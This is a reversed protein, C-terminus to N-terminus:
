SLYLGFFNIVTWIVLDREIFKMIMRSHKSIAVAQDFM